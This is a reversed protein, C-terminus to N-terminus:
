LRYSCCNSVIILRKSRSVSSVVNNPWSCKGYIFCYSHETNIINEL